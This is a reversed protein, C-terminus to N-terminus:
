EAEDLGMAHIQQNLGLRERECHLWFQHIGRYHLNKEPREQPLSFYREVSEVIIDDFEKSSFYDLAEHEFNALQNQCFANFEETQFHKDAIKAYEDLTQHYSWGEENAQEKVMYFDDWEKAFLPKRRGTVAIFILWRAMGKVLEPFYYHLSTINSDPYANAFDIPHAIGEHDILTECSNHDWNYFANIVKTIKCMEDHEEPSIFNHQIAIQENRLYRDHSYKAGANYHMPYMQPGVGVTRVFEKFDVAKQLNVPKDKIKHYAEHLAYVDDVKIVDVWGGGSQPKMYAPYGVAEGIAALDFMEHSDFILDAQITKSELIDDYNAQPIAWTAPIRLGLEAMQGYSTNKDISKFSLMDNILYTHPMVMHFFSNHHPNWHAGRNMIVNCSTKAGLVNYPRSVIRRSTLHYEKGKYQIDKTIHNLLGTLAYRFSFSNPDMIGIIREIKDSM